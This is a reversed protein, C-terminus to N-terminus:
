ISEIFFHLSHKIKDRVFFCFLVNFYQIQQYRYRREDKKEEERRKRKKKKIKNIEEKKLPASLIRPDCSSCLLFFKFFFFTLTNKTNINILFSYYMENQYEKDKCLFEIEVVNRNTWRRM